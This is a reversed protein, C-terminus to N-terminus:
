TIVGFGVRAERRGVDVVVVVIWNYSQFIIILFLAADVSDERVPSKM